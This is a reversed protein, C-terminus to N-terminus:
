KMQDRISNLLSQVDRSIAMGDTSNVKEPVGKQGGPNSVLAQSALIRTQGSVDVFDLTLRLVPGALGPGSLLFAGTETFKTEFVANMENRSRIQYGKNILENTTFALVDKASKGPITVEPRGSATGHKVPDACGVIALLSLAAVWTALLKNM